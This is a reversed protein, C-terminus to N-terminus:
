AGQATASQIVAAAEAAINMFALQEAEDFLQPEAFTWGAAGIVVGERMVPVAAVAHSGHERWIPELRPFERAAVKLSALWQPRGDRASITLPFPDTKHLPFWRQLAGQAYGFSHVLALDTGADRVLVGAKAGAIVSRRAFSQLDNLPPAAAAPRAAEATSIIEALEFPKPIVRVEPFEVRIRQDFARPASSLMVARRLDDPRHERLWHLVDAGSASPLFLDLFALDYRIEELLLLADSGNALADVQYGLRTLLVSLLRQTGSDNEVVLALPTM